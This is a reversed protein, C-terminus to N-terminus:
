WDNQLAQSIIPSAYITSDSFRFNSGSVTRTNILKVSALLDLEGYGYVKSVQGKSTTVEGATLVGMQGQTRKSTVTETYGGTTSSTEEYKPMAGRLIFTGVDKM